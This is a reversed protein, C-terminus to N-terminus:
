PAAPRPADLVILSRSVQRSRQDCEDKHPERLPPPRRLVPASNESFYDDPRDWVTEKTDKNWYYVQRCGAGIVRMYARVFVCAHVCACACACVCACVCVRVRARSVCVCVCVCVCVRVCVCVCVCLAWVCVCVFGVQKTTADIAMEWKGRGAGAGAGKGVAGAAGAAPGDDGLIGALLPASEDDDIADRSLTM